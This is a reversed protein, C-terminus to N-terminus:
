RRRSRSVEEEEEEEQNVDEVEREREEEHEITEEREIEEVRDDTNAVNQPRNYTLSAEAKEFESIVNAKVEKLEPTNGHKAALSDIEKELKTLQEMYLKNAREREQQVAKDVELTKTVEYTIVAEELSKIEKGLKNDKDLEKGEFLELRSEIANTLVKEDVAAKQGLKELQEKEQERTFPYEEGEVDPMWSARFEKPDAELNSSFANNFEKTLNFKDLFTGLQKENEFHSFMTDVPNDSKLIREFLEKEEIQLSQTHELSKNQLDDKAVFYHIDNDINSVVLPNKKLYDTNKLEEMLGADHLVKSDVNNAVLVAGLEKVLGQKDCEKIIQKFEAIKNQDLTGKMEKALVDAKLLTANRNEEKIAKNLDHAEIKKQILEAAKIMMFSMGGDLLVSLILLKKNSMFFSSEKPSVKLTTDEDELRSEKKEKDDQEGKAARRTNTNAANEIHIEKGEKLDEQQEKSLEVGNVAVVLPIKNADVVDFDKTKENYEVLISTNRIDNSKDFPTVEFFNKNVVEPKEGVKVGNEYIPVNVEVPQVGTQKVNINTGIIVNANKLASELEVGWIVREKGESNLTVHYSEKNKDDFQYPAKGHSVLEGSIGTQKVHVGGKESIYKMEEDSLLNSKNMDMYHPHIKLKTKGESDKYMSLKCDFDCVKDRVLINSLRLDDTKLGQELKERNEQSILINNESDMLGMAQLEEIDLEEIKLTTM